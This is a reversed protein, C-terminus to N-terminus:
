LGKEPARVVQFIGIGRPKPSCADPTLHVLRGLSLPTVTSEALVVGGKDRCYQQKGKLAVGSIHLGRWVPLRANYIIPDGLSREGEGASIGVLSM